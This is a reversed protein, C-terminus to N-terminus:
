TEVQDHGASRDILELTFGLLVVDLDAQVDLGTEHRIAALAEKVGREASVRLLEELAAVAEGLAETVATECSM